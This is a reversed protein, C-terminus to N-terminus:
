AGRPKEVLHGTLYQHLISAVLAQYSVGAEAAKRELVVLDQQPLLISLIGAEQLASTAYGQYQRLSESVAGVSHWEDREYSDLLDREETELELPNNM